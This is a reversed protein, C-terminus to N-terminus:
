KIVTNYISMSALALTLERSRKEKLKKYEQKEDETMKHVAIKYVDEGKTRRM